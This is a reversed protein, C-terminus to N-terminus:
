LLRMIIFGGWVVALMILVVLIRYEDPEQIIEMTRTVVTLM